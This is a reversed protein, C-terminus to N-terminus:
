RSKGSPKVPHRIVTRIREPATRRPDSLYIEHHKGASRCGNEEIFSALREITPREEAYPGIHLIQAARGEAFREFRVRPLAPLGKEDALRRVTAEARRRCVPPPQMVMATWRWDGKRDLRLKSSGKSWWLSELPMVRVDALGAKKLAFKLTYSVSFLAQIAEQFSPTADPSGAGDVILFNMPPVDVFAPAKPSPSYLARFDKRM